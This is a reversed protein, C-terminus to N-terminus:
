SALLAIIGLWYTEIAAVAATLTASELNAQFPAVSYSRSALKCTGRYRGLLVFPTTWCTSLPVLLFYLDFFITRTATGSSGSGRRSSVCGCLLRQEVFTLCSLSLEEYTM